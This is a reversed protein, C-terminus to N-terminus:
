NTSYERHKIHSLMTQLSTTPSVDSLRLAESIHYYHLCLLTIFKDVPCTNILEIGEFQGGWTVCLDELDTSAPTPLMICDSKSLTHSTFLLQQVVPLLIKTSYDMSERAWHSSFQFDEDTYQHEPIKVEFSDLYWQALLNSMEYSTELQSDNSNVPYTSPYHDTRWNFLDIFKMDRRLNLERHLDSLPVNTRISHMICLDVQRGEESRWQSGALLEYRM